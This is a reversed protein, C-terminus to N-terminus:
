HKNLPEGPGIRYFSDGRSHVSISIKEWKKKCIKHTNKIPAEKALWYTLGAYPSSFKYELNPSLCRSGSPELLNTFLAQSPAQTWLEPLKCTQDLSQAQRLNWIGSPILISSPARELRKQIAYQGKCTHIRGFESYHTFVQFCGQSDQEGPGGTLHKISRNSAWIQVSYEPLLSVPRVWSGSFIGSNGLSKRPSENLSILRRQHYYLEHRKTIVVSSTSPLPSHSFGMYFHWWCGSSQHLNPHRGEKERGGKRKIWLTEEISKKFLHKEWILAKWNKANKQNVDLIGFKNKKQYSHRTRMKAKPLLIQQSQM